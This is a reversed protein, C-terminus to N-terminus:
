QSRSGATERGELRERRVRVAVEEMDEAVLFRYAAVANEFRTMFSVYGLRHLAEYRYWGSADRVTFMWANNEITTGVFRYWSGNVLRLDRLLERSPPSMLMRWIHEQVIDDPLKPLLPVRDVEGQLPRASSQQLEQGEADTVAQHRGARVINWFWDRLVQLTRWIRAAVDRGVAFWWELEDEMLRTVDGLLIECYARIHLGCPALPPTSEVYRSPGMLSGQESRTSETLTLKSVAMLLISETM